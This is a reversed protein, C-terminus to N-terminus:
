MKRCTRLMALSFELKREMPPCFVICQCNSHSCCRARPKGASTELHINAGGLMESYVMRRIELPLKTMFTSQRQDSTIQNKEPEILPLTLARSRPPPRVPRPPHLDDCLHVCSGRYQRPRFCLACLFCPGCCTWFICKCSSWAAKTIFDGTKKGARSLRSKPVSM